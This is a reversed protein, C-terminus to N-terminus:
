RRGGSSGKKIPIIVPGSANKPIDPMDLSRHQAVSTQNTPCGVFVVASSANQFVIHLSILYHNYTIHM